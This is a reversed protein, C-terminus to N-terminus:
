QNEFNNSHRTCTGKYQRNDLQTSALQSDIKNKRLHTLM